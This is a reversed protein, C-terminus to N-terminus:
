SGRPRKALAIAQHVRPLDSITLIGLLAESPRAHQTILIADLDKGRKAFEDFEDLADFLTSARDLFCHNQQDESHKLVQAITTDQLSFVDADVEYGLWRAITNATLVGIVHRDRLVPLQSFSNERMVVVAEALPRSFEKTQVARQFLPVVKPPNLLFDRLKQLQSVAEINPEAIVHGDSREHVIANRLDAYEKLDDRFRAVVRNEKAAIDVLGYFSVWREAGVTGRLWKEIAVFSDLFSESNRM